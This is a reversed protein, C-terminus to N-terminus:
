PSLCWSQYMLLKLTMSSLIFSFDKFKILLSLLYSTMVRPNLKLIEENSHGEQVEKM